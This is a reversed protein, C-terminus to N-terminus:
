FIRIYFNHDGDLCLCCNPFKIMSYLLVQFLIFMLKESMKNGSLLHCHSCFPNLAVFLIIIGLLMQKSECTELVDQLAQYFTLFLDM